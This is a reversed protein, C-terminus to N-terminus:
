RLLGAPEEVFSALTQLFAAGRAGDLARHDFAASLQLVPRLAPQGEVPVIRDSIQGVALIAVEPANIIADFSDIGYMGLNSLTFTGGTLDDPRLGGARAAEVLEVRRAVVEALSLRDADRIVPVVLGDDVAVALGLGIEPSTVIAGDRWCANVRPHRRLAEAAIKVLLDTHSVRELGPGARAVRRWSVLRSADVERRLYFHPVSQWTNTTREAM